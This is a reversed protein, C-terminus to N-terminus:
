HPCIGIESGSFWYIIRCSTSWHLSVFHKRETRVRGLSIKREFSKKKKQSLFWHRLDLAM